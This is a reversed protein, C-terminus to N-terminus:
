GSVPEVWGARDVFSDWGRRRIGETSVWSLLQLEKPWTSSTYEGMYTSVISWGDKEYLTCSIDDGMIHFYGYIGRPQAPDYFADTPGVGLYVVGSGDYGYVYACRVARGSEGNTILLEPVGDGDMDYLLVSYVTEEGWGTRVPAYEQGATLFSWDLIFHAYAGSWGAESKGGRIRVTKAGGDWDVTFGFYEALWRVPAYTRDSVIVAATDMSIWAGDGTRASSSGIPFALTKTGDSFVAERKAGDWSVLLGLAEAVARLPVMTRSSEDIFPAADTWRVPIGNVSVHVASPLITKFYVTGGPAFNEAYWEYMGFTDRCENYSELLKEYYAEAASGACGIVTFGMLAAPAGSISSNYGFAGSGIDTVSPPITVETMGTWAFACRGVSVLGEPLTVDELMPCEWFATEGISRLGSGLQLRSVSSGSFANEGISAVSDALTVSVLGTYQEMCIEPLDGAFAYAGVSTVGEEVVVARIQLRYEWWPATTYVAENVRGQNEYRVEFDDMPGRGSVTLVGTDLDLSWRLGAGCSGSPSAALAHGGLVPLLLACALLLIVFRKRM